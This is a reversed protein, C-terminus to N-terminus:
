EDDREAERALEHRREQHLQKEVQPAVYLPDNSAIQSQAFLAARL